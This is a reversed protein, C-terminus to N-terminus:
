IIYKCDNRFIVFTLDDYIFQNVWRDILKHKRYPIRIEEWDEPWEGKWSYKIEVEFFYKIPEDDTDQVRNCVIDFSMTEKDNINIYDKKRLWEIIADKAATDAQNYLARDFRKTTNM